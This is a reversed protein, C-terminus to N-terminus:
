KVYRAQTARIQKEPVIIKGKPTLITFNKGRSLIVGEIVKGNYLSVTHIHGYTAKLHKLAAETMADKGLGPKLLDQIQEEDKTEIGRIVPIKSIAELEHSESNSIMQRKEKDTFTATTGAPVMTEKIGNGPSVAVAGRRVALVATGPRYKVSFETGRVSAVIAPTGVKYTSNGPLTVVRSLITGRDTFLERKKGDLISKVTVTSNEAIKVVIMEEVQLLVFSNAGTKILDADNLSLKISPEAPKGKHILEVKGAFFTIYAAGPEPKFVQYLIGSLVIVVAAAAALVLPLRKSYTLKRDALTSRAEAFARDLIDAQQLTKGTLSHRSLDFAKQRCQACDAMHRVVRDYGSYRRKLEIFAALEHDTLCSGETSIDKAKIKNEDAHQALAMATVLEVLEGIGAPRKKRDLRANIYKKIGM